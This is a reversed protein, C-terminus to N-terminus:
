LHHFKLVYKAQVLLPEKSSGSLFETREEADSVSPVQQERKKAIQTRVEEDFLNQFEVDV